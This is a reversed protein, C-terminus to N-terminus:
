KKNAQYDKKEKCYNLCDTLRDRAALMDPSDEDTGDIQKDLCMDKELAEEDIKEFYKLFLAEIMFEFKKQKLEHAPVAFPDPEYITQEELNATSLYEVYKRQNEEIQKEYEFYKVFENTSADNNLNNKFNNYLYDRLKNCSIIKLVEDAEFQHKAYSNRKCSSKEWLSIQSNNQEVITKKCISVIQKRLNDKFFPNNKAYDELHYLELAKNITDSISYTSKPPTM